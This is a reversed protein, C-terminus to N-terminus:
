KIGKSIKYNGAKYITSTLEGPLKVAATAGEPVAFEWKWGNDTYKWASKVLGAMSQYEAKVSGLRRDPHPELAIMAYGSEGAKIGAATKYLWGVMLGYAYHNFSNMGVPGFGDKKTYSNWREWVTTAGQDVSYLWSPFGHNLVLSYALDEMGNEVLTDLLISTGLFGTALCGEHKEFNKRLEVKTAEVAAASELVGFKLAFLAAGQLHRFEKLLMGDEKEVYERRVYAMAKEAMAAYKKADEGNGLAAAMESMMKADWHWYCGAMFNWYREAEPRIAKWKGQDDFVFASGNCPEYDEFSLWDAYQDGPMGNPKKPNKYETAEQMALFRAMATYNEELIRKDGYQRWMTYPVIVGADSWGLKHGANGYQGFPAVSPFSGDEHQSDREDRMWKCLFGYVEANYSATECFVQTDATWGLREDRQPCDTPVSLYNSLMGWYTNKIFRNLSKDGTEINGREMDKRISSVPVSKVSRITVKGTATVSLYRYGFYSFRPMYKETKRGAFTYEILRSTKYGDRLNLRYVSGEPGDNGRSKLGNEDNLMEAPRATLITGEAAEFEFEPVAATNQAFDVVLTEGELITMAEGSKFTKVVKVKGYANTDAGEVGNWTYAVAPAMSLDCRLYVEAGNSPLIEGKFEDNLEAEAYSGEYGAQKRADYHEGDFIGATTVRGGVGAKWKTDTCIREKFGDVYTLELVGRFASKKGMFGNNGIPTVIKDRWWGSSVEAALNNKEGAKLKLEKTVDYTFSYKTKAYHTYGPKLFEEGIRQGNVYVEFVGLGTVTWKASKIEKANVFDRVFCSTGMESDCGSTIKETRVKADKASIWESNSWDMAVCSLSLVAVLLFIYNKM